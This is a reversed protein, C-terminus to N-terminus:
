SSGDICSIWLFCIFLRAMPYMYIMSPKGLVTDIAVLPTHGNHTYVCCMIWQLNSHAGEPKFVKNM